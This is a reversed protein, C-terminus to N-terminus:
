FIEIQNNTGSKNISKKDDPIIFVDMANLLSSFVCEFYTGKAHFSNESLQVIKGIAAKQLYVSWTPPQENILQFSINRNM